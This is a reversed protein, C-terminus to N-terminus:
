PAVPDRVLRAIYYSRKADWHYVALDRSKQKHPWVGAGCMKWEGNDQYLFRLQVPKGEPGKPLDAIISIEGPQSVFKQDELKLAVPVTCTNVAAMSGAPFHEPSDNVAAVAWLALPAPNKVPAFVVIATRTDQPLTVEGLRLLPDDLSRRDKQTTFVLKGSRTVANFGRGPLKNGLEAPVLPAAAEAEPDHAFVEKHVLEPTASVLRLNWTAPPDRLAEGDLAHVPLLGAAMGIASLCAALFTRSHM